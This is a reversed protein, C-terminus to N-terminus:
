RWRQYLAEAKKSWRIVPLEAISSGFQKTIGGEVDDAHLWIRKSNAGTIGRARSSQKVVGLRQMQRRVRGGVKRKPLKRLNQMVLRVSEYLNAGKEIANGQAAAFAFRNYRKTNSYSPVFNDQM